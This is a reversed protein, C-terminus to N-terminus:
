EDVDNTRATSPFQNAIIANNSWFSIKATSETELESDKFKTVKLPGFPLALSLTMKFNGPKWV